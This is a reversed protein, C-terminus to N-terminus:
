NGFVYNGITVTGSSITMNGNFATTGTIDSYNCNYGGDFVMSIDQDANVDNNFVAIRSQITDGDLAADYADQLTSYYESARMNRAPLMCAADFAATLNKDADMTMTCINNSASDCGTWDIFPYGSTESATLVVLTGSEFMQGGSYDPVISGSGAPSVLTTLQYEILEPTASATAGFSINGVADVACLRYYYTLGNTLGTHQYGTGTTVEPIEIGNSCDFVPFGTTSYTLKYPDTTDLGSGTDSFGSWQLDVQYTGPTATITGDTPIASDVTRTVASGEGTGGASTARMNLTLVEANNGTIGTQSCTWTPSSGSLNALTWESDCTGDTSRCYECSTIASDNDTFDTTLDFPTDVFNNFQTNSPTVNGPVPPGPVVAQVSLTATMTSGSTSINTVIIDTPTGNYLDSNPSSADDFTVANGLYWLDTANGNNNGKELHWIGDAQVLAVKYHTSSCDAPPYCEQTNDSKNDDIHWIALGAGPLGEDFGTLQRNEVLFYESPNGTAFQYVDPTTAAQDILEDTLTGAVQIPTVWGLTVKSWASMHAPTDGARTVSNWSGSAMLGWDGIGNSSYDTDYLDPLGLAHGYEHAFVGMTQM